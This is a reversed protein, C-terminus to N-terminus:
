YAIKKKLNSTDSASKSMDSVGKTAGSLKDFIGAM